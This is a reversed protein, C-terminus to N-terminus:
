QFLHSHHDKQQDQEVQASRLTAVQGVGVKNARIDRPGPRKTRARALGAAFPSEKVACSGDGELAPRAGHITPAIIPPAKSVQQRTPNTTKMMSIFMDFSSANDFAAIAANNALECCGATAEL